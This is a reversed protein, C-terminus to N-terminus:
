RRTPAVHERCHQKAEEKRENINMLLAVVSYTAAATVLITSLYLLRGRWRSRQPEISDTM